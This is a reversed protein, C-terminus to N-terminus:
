EAPEIPGAMSAVAVVSEPKKMKFGVPM